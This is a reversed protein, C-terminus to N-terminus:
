VPLAAYFNGMFENASHQGLPGKKVGKCPRIHNQHHAM